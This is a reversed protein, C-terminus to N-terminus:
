FEYAAENINQQDEKYKNQAVELMSQLADCHVEDIGKM